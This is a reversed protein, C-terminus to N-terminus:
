RLFDILSPRILRSGASLSAEYVNEVTKLNTITEAMDADETNSLLTQLNISIDKVRDEALEVRNARAGVDARVESFSNLRTDLNGLETNLEKFDGIELANILKDMVAFANDVKGPEGFVTNGTVNVPLKVGAGIEFKIDATDTWENMASELAFPPINTKQGNFVHKGNFESNGISVLQEHLQIVESKIADLATQSNTGNAAQVTLERTRQLVNGAQDLMTDTYELWSTASDINRQYQDNASLEGRYRMAFGIGVPDDSPKNIKRGTALENQLRDMRNLNQNLNRLLQTNLMGQTVRGAM